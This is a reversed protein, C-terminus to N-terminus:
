IKDIEEGAEDVTYVEGIKVSIIGKELDDFLAKIADKETSNSYNNNNEITTAVSSMHESGKLM